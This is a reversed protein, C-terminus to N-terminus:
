EKIKFLMRQQHDKDGFVECKWEIKDQINDNNNWIISSIGGVSIEGNLLNKIQAYTKYEKGLVSLIMEIKQSKTLKKM